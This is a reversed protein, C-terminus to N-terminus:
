EAEEKNVKRAGDSTECVHFGVQGYGAERYEEQVRHLVDAMTAEEVIAIVCGGFGAGTMRAGLAGHRVFSAQLTDLQVASVEFDDRLSAHGANLIAGFTDLDGDKLARVAHETRAQESVAHRVRARIVPDELVSQVAHFDEMNLDCLHDWEPHVSQIRRLGEDCEARRQNYASDVLGRKVNSNAIVIRHSTLDLPVWDFALTNTDLYIAHGRKGMAVAFQDMIGCNVGVYDNEVQKAIQALEIMSMSGQYQDLLVVGMLVELSASSSLGAGNPLDGYVIVNLGHSIHMGRRVLADIMGIPYNAWGRQKDYALDSADVLVPLTNPFNHSIFQFKRDSRRTVIAHIGLSIATPFVRGGLYDIHEGILNIRGPSVYHDYGSALQDAYAELLPTLDM